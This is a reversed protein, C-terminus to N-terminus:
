ILCRIASFSSEEHPLLDHFDSVQGRDPTAKPHSLVIKFSAVVRDIYNDNISMALRKLIKVPAAPAFFYGAFAWFLSQIINIILGSM